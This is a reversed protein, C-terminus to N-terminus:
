YTFSHTVLRATMTVSKETVTSFVCEDLFPFARMKNMCGPEWVLFFQPM